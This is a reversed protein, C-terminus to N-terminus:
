EKSMKFSQICIWDKKSIVNDIKFHYLNLLKIIEEKQTELIGSLILSGQSSLVEFFHPILPKIVSAIINCCILDYNKLLNKRKTELFSGQHITLSNIEGFNLKLNERTSNIALYDNDIVHLERAGLKQAAISLIGSGCGVDLFIKEKVITKELMELCLSTSPHGGTGFAAGPDIKIVVKKNYQSPLNMWCPLVLFDQGILEFKWFNKWTNLWDEEKIFSWSLLNINLGNEILLYKLKEELEERKNRKWSVAPLWVLLKVVNKDKNSYDFAYSFIASQNLKWIILDEVNKNIELSLRWWGKNTM